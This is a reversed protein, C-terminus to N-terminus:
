ILARRRTLMGLVLSLVLSGVISWIIPFPQGGITLTFVEPLGLMRAMWLGIFAGIFGVVASVLCGGLSYGALAQGLSGCIAAVIVLIIFDLITM